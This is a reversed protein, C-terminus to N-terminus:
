KKFYGKGHVPYLLGQAVLKTLVLRVTTRCTELEAAV